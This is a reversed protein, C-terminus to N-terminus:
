AAASRPRRPLRLLGRRSAARAATFRQCVCLACDTGKRYHQHALHAHGCGCPTDDQPTAM